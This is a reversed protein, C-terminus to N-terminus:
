NWIKMAGTRLNAGRGFQWLAAFAAAIMRIRAQASPTSVLARAATRFRDLEVGLRLALHERTTRLDAASGEDTGCFAKEAEAGALWFTVPAETVLGRPARFPACNVEGLDARLLAVGYTLAACAHGAERIAVHERLTPMSVIWAAL